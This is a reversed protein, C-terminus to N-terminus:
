RAEAKEEEAMQEAAAGAAVKEVKAKVEAKELALGVEMWVALVEEMAAVRERAMVVPAMEGEMATVVLVATVAVTVVRCVEV